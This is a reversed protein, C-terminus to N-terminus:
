QWSYPFREIDTEVLNTGKQVEIITLLTYAKLAHKQGKSINIVTGRSVPSRVGDIVIEGDGDIVTWVEDRCNHRQYSISAGPNLVLQKTLAEYGDPFKVSDLVRYNGWRREEFMPRTKLANAYDKVNESKAKDSVIIGDPSAAVILDKTGLCLIPINLENIIHTNRCGGDTAVNGHTHDHLEESLANWTGLDKWQGNFPVVGISNCREAVEYDFSIKPFRDYNLVYDSFRRYTAYKRAISTIFGLRFAFVGGNWLAGKSILETARRVSPKETFQEVAMVGQDGNEAVPMVYGYKASPYTPKIGMVVLSYKDEEVCAAMAAITEFYGAETYPDCPMVVVVEDDACKKELALYEAALCIAPFTDRRSPERVISVGEGLQSMVSDVQSASTAVTVDAQLKSSRLQRVVRQIMSEEEGTTENRLLRLFQKSRADNSLPWLRAGSGGSLLIIQM